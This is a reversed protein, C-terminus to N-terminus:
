VHARGIQSDKVAAATSTKAAVWAKIASAAGARARQLGEYTTNLAGGLNENQNRGDTFYRDAFTDTTQIEDSMNGSAVVFGDGSGSFQVTFDQIVGNRLTTAGLSGGLSSESLVTPTDVELISNSCAVMAVAGAIMGATRRATHLITHMTM